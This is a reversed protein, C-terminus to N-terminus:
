LMDDSDVERRRRNLMVCVACLTGSLIALMAAAATNQTVGTPAVKKERNLIKIIYTQENEDFEVIADHDVSVPHAEDTGSITVTIPDAIKEYAEDVWTETITFSGYYMPDKEYFLGYDANEPNTIYPYHEDDVGSIRYTAGILATSYDGDWSILKIKVSKLTNKFTVTEGNEPVACTYIRANNDANGSGNEATIETAYDDSELETIKLQAGTPVGQLTYSDGDRVTFVSDPLTYDYNPDDDLLEARFRFARGPYKNDPDDVEKKVTFNATKRTNTFVATGGANADRWVVEYHNNANQVPFGDKETAAMITSETTYDQAATEKVTMNYNSVIIAGDVNTKVGIEIPTRSTDETGDAKYFTIRSYNAAPNQENVNQVRIHEGHRLTIVASGSFDDQTGNDLQYHFSLNLTFTFDQNQNGPAPVDKYIDVIDADKNIEWVAYLYRVQKEANSDGGLPQFDSKKLGIEPPNEPDDYKYVAESADPTEAWGKFVYGIKVRTKDALSFVYAPDNDPITDSDFDFEQHGTGQLPDELILAYECEKKGFVITGGSVHKYLKDEYSFAEGNNFACVDDAAHYPEDQLDPPYESRITLMTGVGLENTGNIKIKEGEGYPIAFTLTQGPEVTIHELDTVKERDYTSVAKNVVYLTHTGDATLAFTVPKDTENRFNAYVTPEWVAYLTIDDKRQVSVTSDAAYDAIFDGEDREDDFGLLFYDQDHKFYNAADSRGKYNEFTAYQYLHIAANSQMDGFWIQNRDKVTAATGVSDSVYWKKWELNVDPGNPNVIHGDTADLKLNAIEPRRYADDEREYVAQMLITNESDAYKSHITLIEGPQYFKGPELAVYNPQDETGRNMVIRWGRFIFEKDRIPRGDATLDVPQRLVTATAGEAYNAANMPDIWQDMDGNISVGNVSYEPVYKIKFGGSLQWVARLTINDHIPRSFDYQTEELEGNEKVLYWERLQYSVNSSEPIKSYKQTSVYNHRWVPYPIDTKAKGYKEPNQKQYAKLVKMHFDFYAQLQRETLYMANHLDDPLSRGELEENHQVNLYYYVENEDMEEAALDTIPLYKAPKVNKEDYKAIAEEYEKHFYTSADKNYGSDNERNFTPIQEVEAPPNSGFIKTRYDDLTHDIHDIEGGNPDIRVLFEDPQWKAFLKVNGDPMVSNFDFPVTCAKDAYWGAFKYHEPANPSLDQYDEGDPGFRLLSEEFLVTEPALSQLQTGPEFVLDPKNPYNIDYILKNSNRTYYLNVTEAELKGGSFAPNSGNKTFGLLEMFDEAETFFNYNASVTKYLKYDVGNRSEVSAEGPLTEVYFHMTKTSYNAINKRFTVNYDPMTEILVLVQNYPHGSNTDQPMWREGNNYYIGNTGLIPFHNAINQGYLAKIEHVTQWSSTSSQTYRTGNYVNNNGYTWYYGTWGSRHRTLQVYQGNVLGYQTPYDWTSTTPTYTYTYIEDQFTLEHENRDYYIDIVTKGSGSVTETNMVPETDRRHFGKQILKKMEEPSASNVSLFPRLENSSLIQALTRGSSSPIVESTVYDYTKEKLTANVDDTIKQAWVNVTYTTNPIEQWRAYLKIDSLNPDGSKEYAYIKGNKVEFMQDPDYRFNSINDSVVKGEADAIKVADDGSGTYWGLFEYGNCKPVPFQEHYTGREQDNTLLFLPAAYTAGEEEMQTHFTIWRAKVFVPYLDINNDADMDRKEAVMYYGSAYGDDKFPEEDSNDVEDGLKDVSEEHDWQGNVKHEWGYFVLHKVDPSPATVNGIRVDASEDSGFAILKRTLLTDASGAEINDRPLLHFNIFHYDSYLPALYVHTCGDPDADLDRTVSGLTWTSDSISIPQEFVIEEPDTPWQYQYQKPEGNEGETVKDVDVIYWGYFYSHKGDESEQNLPNEIMELSETDLLIQSSQKMLASSEDGPIEHGKNRFKFPAAHYTVTTSSGEAISEEGLTMFHFEVRQVEPTEDEHESIVYVSFHEAEFSVSGAEASIEAIEEEAGEEGIHYVALSKNEADALEPMTFTVQVARGDPEYVTEGDEEFITLDYAALTKMGDISYSVPYGKVVAHAPLVGSVTIETDTLLPESYTEDTYLEAATRQIESVDAASVPMAGFCFLVLSLIALLLAAIRKLMRM